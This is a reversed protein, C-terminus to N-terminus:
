SFFIASVFIIIFFHFFLMFFMWVKITPHKKILKSKRSKTLIIRDLANYTDKSILEKSIIVGSKQVIKYVNVVAGYAGAQKIIQEGNKLSSDKEYKIKYKIESLNEIDFNINYEVDEKIGYIDVKVVGGNVSVEIKIPYKRSNVFKLDKAGYSVTADRGVPVYSTVFQHNHRETINLNAFIAANYLTSSIQCIGGGIGDVVQGNSYIKAEKYGASITRAGVIKNYSFESNPHLVTGNIKEAALNLNTSRSINSADYSTSFTALLDPFVDIDLNELTIEPNTYKLQVTYENDNPNQSIMSKVSAIDFDVGIVEAYVRFPDKEYYANQVKTYIESHIKDIDIDSTAVEQVPIELIDKSSNLNKLEEFLLKKFSEEDIIIGSSGRTIILNGDEIYYSPNILTNPLELSIESIALRLSDEDFAPEIYFNKKFLFASLISYNNQFINGQRGYNYADNFTHSIDYNINLSSFKFPIKLDGYVLTLEKELKNNIKGSIFNVADDKKLGSVNVNNIYIGSFFDSSTMNAVAFILSFFLLFALVIFFILILLKRKEM